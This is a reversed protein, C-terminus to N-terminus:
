HHHHGDAVSDPALSALRVTYAGRSVVRAGEALGDLVEVRDGDEIGVKLFRKQFSEGGVLVYATPLGNEVVVAERPIAIANHAVRTGLYVDLSMGIRLRGLPNPVEFLLSASHTVSDVILPRHVLEAGEVDRLDLMTEDHGPIKVIASPDDGLSPLDFEPVRAEIWVISADIIEFVPERVDFFQGEICEARVLVGDIPARLPLLLGDGGGAETREAAAAEGELDVLGRLADRLEDLLADIGALEAAAVRTTQEAEDMEQDTALGRGHLSRVRELARAAYDIRTTLTSRTAALEASRVALDTRRLALERRQAALQSRNAALAAAETVPLPPRIWGLLRGKTVREGMDPLGGDPAVISGAIPPTVHAANGHRTVVRGPVQVREILDERDVLHLRTGVRWQEELRFTVLDPVDAGDSLAARAAADDAHVAVSGLDFRDEHDGRLVFSLAVDGPDAITLAPVFLGPRRPAEASARSERGGASRAVVELTGASVPEGSALITVHALFEIPRGAVPIPFEVFLESRDTFVTATTAPTEDEHAADDDAHPHQHHPPCGLGAVLLFLLGSRLFRHM